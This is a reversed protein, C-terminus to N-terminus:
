NLRWIGYNLFWAFSVWLFYPILLVAGIIEKGATLALLVFIVFWLFSLEILAGAPSQLYFFMFSWGANLVLQLFYFFWLWGAKLFGHSRWLFWGALGIMAYLLTWVPGFVWSPPTYVPKQLSQYWNNVSTSTFLGGALSTILVIVGFIVLWVIQEKGSKM